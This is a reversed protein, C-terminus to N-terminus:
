FSKMTQTTHASAIFQTPNLADSNMYVPYYSTYEILSLGIIQNRLYNVNLIAGQVSNLTAMGQKLQAKAEMENGAM